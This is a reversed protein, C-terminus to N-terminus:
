NLQLWFSIVPWARLTRPLAPDQSTPQAWPTILIILHRLHPRLTQAVHGHEDTFFRGQAPKGSQKQFHGDQAVM